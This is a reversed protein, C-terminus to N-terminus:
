LTFLLHLVIVCKMRNTAFIDGGSPYFFTKLTVTYSNRMCKDAGQNQGYSNPSDDGMKDPMIKSVRPFAHLGM